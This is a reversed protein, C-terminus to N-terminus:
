NCVDKEINKKDTVALYYELVGVVVGILCLIQYTKLGMFVVSEGRLFETLFRSGSYLIVYIPFATGNKLKRRCKIFFAFILIAVAAELLQIPFEKIGSFANPIGYNWAVGRCCGATFCAVKSFFLAVPYAPTILDMQNLLDSELVFCGLAMFIPALYLLGFYNAGTGVMKGFLNNVFIIPAYQFLSIIVSEIVLWFNDETIIGSKGNMRHKAALNRFRSKTLTGREKIRFLNYIILAAAGVYNLIDYTTM